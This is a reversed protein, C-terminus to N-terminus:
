VAGEQFREKVAMKDDLMVGQPTKGLGGQPLCHGCGEELM